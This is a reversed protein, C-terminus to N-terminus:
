AGFIEPHSLTPSPTCNRKQWGLYKIVAPPIFPKNNLLLGDKVEELETMGTSGTRLILRWVKRYKWGNSMAFQEVKEEHQLSGLRKDGTLLM